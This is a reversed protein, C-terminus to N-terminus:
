KDYNDNLFCHFLFTDEFFMKLTWLKEESYSIDPLKAGNFDFYSKEKDQKRWKQKFIETEKKRFIDTEEEKKIRRTVQHDYFFIFFSPFFKLERAVGKLFYAIAEGRTWRRYRLGNLTNQYLKM